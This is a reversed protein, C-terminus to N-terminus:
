PLWSRLPRPGNSSLDSQVPKSTPSAMYPPHQPGGIFLGKSGGGSLPDAKPRISEVSTPDAKLRVLGALAPDWAAVAVPQEAVRNLVREAFGAPPAERRLANRLEEHLDKMDETM